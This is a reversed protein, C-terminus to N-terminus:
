HEPCQPLMASARCAVNLAKPVLGLSALSYLHAIVVCGCCAEEKRGQRTRVITKAKIVRM